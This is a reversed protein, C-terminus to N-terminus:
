YAIEPLTPWLEAMWQAHDIRETALMMDSLSVQDADHQKPDAKRASIIGAYFKDNYATMVAKYDAGAQAVDGTAALTMDYAVNAAQQADAFHEATM